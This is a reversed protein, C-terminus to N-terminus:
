FFFLLIPIMLVVTLAVDTLLFSSFHEECSRQWKDMLSPTPPCQISTIKGNKDRSVVYFNKNHKM